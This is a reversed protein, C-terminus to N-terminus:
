FTPESLACNISRAATGGRSSSALHKLARFSARQVSPRAPPSLNSIELIMKNRIASAFEERSRIPMSFAGDGGIVCDHFYRELNMAGQRNSSHYRDALIPLGNITVGTNILEERAGALPRGSNNPGDGSLDVVRRASGFGSASFLERARDFMASMSTRLSREIPQRDLRAAFARAAADSDIVTWPVLVRQSGPGGWEVYTVAIRGLRGAKIARLIMPNRFAAVYGNRQLLLEKIEISRSIDVALILQLDVLRKTRAESARAWATELAILTVLCGIIVTWYKRM